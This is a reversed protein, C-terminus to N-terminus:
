CPVSPFCHEKFCSLCTFIFLGIDNPILRCNWQKYGLTSHSMKHNCLKWIGKFYFNFIIMLDNQWHMVSPGPFLGSLVASDTTDNSSCQYILQIYSQTERRSAIMLYPDAIAIFFTGEMKILIDHKLFNYHHDTIM